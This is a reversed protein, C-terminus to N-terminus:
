NIPFHFSIFVSFSKYISSIAFVTITPYMQTYKGTASGPNRTVRLVFKKVSTEYQHLTVNIALYNRSKLMKKVM